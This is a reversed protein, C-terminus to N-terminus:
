KILKLRRMDEESWGIDELLGQLKKPGYSKRPHFHISVYQKAPPRNPNYYVYRSGKIYVLKWGSNKKDLASILDHA